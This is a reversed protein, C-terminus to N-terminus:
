GSDSGDDAGGDSSDGGSDNSSTDPPADVGTDKPGTDTGTETGTDPRSTDTGSETGGEACAAPTLRCDPGPPPRGTTDDGGCAWLFLLACSCGVFSGALLSRRKAM